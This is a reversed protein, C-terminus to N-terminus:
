GPGHSSVSVSGDVLSCAPAPGLGVVNTTSTYSAEHPDGLLQLQPQRQSQQRGNSGKVKDPSGSQAETLSSFIRLGGPVLHGLTPHCGLRPKGRRQPSPSPTLSPFKYPCSQYSLLSPVKIPIYLFLFIFQSLFYNSSFFSLSHFIINSGLETSLNLLLQFFLRVRFPVFPITGRPM